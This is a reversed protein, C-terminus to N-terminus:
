ISLDLFVKFVKKEYNNECLVPIYQADVGSFCPLMIRFPANSIDRNESPLDLRTVYPIANNIVASSYREFYLPKNWLSFSFFCPHNKTITVGFVGFVFTWYVEDIFSQAPYKWMKLVTYLVTGILLTIFSRTWQKIIKFVKKPLKLLLWCFIQM